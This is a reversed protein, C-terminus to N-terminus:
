RQEALREYVAGYAAALREAQVATVAGGDDLVADIAARLVDLADRMGDDDILEEFMMHAEQIVGSM